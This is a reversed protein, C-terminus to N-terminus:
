QLPFFLETKISELAARERLCKDCLIKQDEKMTEVTSPCQFARHCSDCIFTDPPLQPDYNPMWGDNYDEEYVELADSREFNTECVEEYWDLIEDAETDELLYQYGDDVFRVMEGQKATDLIRKIEESSYDKYRKDVILHEYIDMPDFESGYYYMYTDIIEERYEELTAERSKFEYFTDLIKKAQELDEEFYSLHQFLDEVKWYVDVIDIDNYQGLWRIGLVDQDEAAQIEKIKQVVEKIEEYDM